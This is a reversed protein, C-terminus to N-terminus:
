ESFQMQQLRTYEGNQAMLEKHSGAEVIRGKNVVLIKDASEITSLRHAVVITTRGVMLAELAKQIHRESETDLASTAEDLILIPADKLMARAIALRQRQGGSLLLGNDGVQTDLQEPLQEIFEWAYADKAAKIIEEDSADELRGYAINHRITNNFLVVNQSVTAIQQRLSSLTLDEIEIDDVLIKGSDPNYFRQILSAITSKGSGSRGVLAITQGPEATFSVDQLIAKDSEYAFGVKNFEIKGKAREIVKTGNDPEDPLDLIEFVSQAGAIGRQLHTNVNSIDRMPKLIVGMMTIFTILEGDTMRGALLELSGFYMIAAFGFGAVIQIVPSAIGKTAILKMDQQRNRNAKDKFNKIEREAGGFIKIVQNGKITEEATKTVDGVVNQINGSVKKLRKASVNIIWAIVPVVLFLFLTLRWSILTLYVMVFLITGGTRILLTIADSSAVAVQETNFTMTSLLNGPAKQSFFQAPQRIYKEYLSERFDQVVKRGVWGMCYTSVFNCIGRLFIAGIIFLPTQVLLFFKDREKLGDDILYQIANVFSAEILAFGINALVGILFVWKYRKTYGLLRKYIATNKESQKDSM